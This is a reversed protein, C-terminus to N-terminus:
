RGTPSGSLIPWEFVNHGPKIEVTLPTSDGPTLRNYSKECDLTPVTQFDRAQHRIEVLYRGPTPGYKEEIRFRGRKPNQRDADSIHISASPANPNDLPKLTIWGMFPPVGDITVLGEVSCRPQGTLFNNRRMWNLALDPWVGTDPDGTHLGRGHAGDGGFVHLEGEIGAQRMAVLQRMASQPAVFDTLTLVMFAPPTDPRITRVAAEPQDSQASAGGYVMLLFDPRSSVREVPDAADPLGPDSKEGVWSILHCGASFGIMGIRRADVGWQAAKARVLRMARLGDLLATEPEYGQTRIRYSLLFAHIGHSQLWQAVQLGEHDMARVWYGGGPCVLVACGSAQAPEALLLRIVPKDEDREGKALPVNTDWLPISPLQMLDSNMSSSPPNDVAASALGAWGIALGLLFLKTPFVPM